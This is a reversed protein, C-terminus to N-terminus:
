NRQINKSFKKFFKGGRWVGNLLLYVCYLLWFTYYGSQLTDSSPLAELTIRVKPDPCLGCIFYYFGGESGFRLFGWM